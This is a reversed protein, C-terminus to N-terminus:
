DGTLSGDNVYYTHFPNAVRFPNDSQDSVGGATARILHVASRFSGRM